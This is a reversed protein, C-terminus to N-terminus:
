LLVDICVEDPAPLETLGEPLFFTLPVRIGEAVTTWQEGGCFPPFVCGESGICDYILDAGDEDQFQCALFAANGGDTRFVNGAVDQSSIDYTIAWQEEGVRKNVLIEGCDPSFQASDAAAAVEATLALALLSLALAWRSSHNNKM